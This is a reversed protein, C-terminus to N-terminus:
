CFDIARIPVVGASCWFNFPDRPFQAAWWPQHTIIHNEQIAGREAPVNTIQIEYCLQMWSVIDNM